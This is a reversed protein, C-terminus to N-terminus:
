RREEATLGAWTGEREGAALAYSGCERRAPCIRCALRTLAVTGEANSFWADPPLSAGGECPVPGREALAQRLAHWPAVAAAPILHLHVAPGGVGRM